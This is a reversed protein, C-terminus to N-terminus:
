SGAMLASRAMQARGAVLASDAMLDSGAMLANGAVLTYRFCSIVIISISMLTHLNCTYTNRKYYNVMLLNCFLLVNITDAYYM